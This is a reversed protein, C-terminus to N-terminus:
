PDSAPRALKLRGDTGFLGLNGGSISGVRFCRGRSSSRRFEARSREPLLMPETAAPVEKLDWRFDPDGLRRPEDVARDPEREDDFIFENAAAALLEVNDFLYKLSIKNKGLARGALLKDPKIPCKIIVLRNPANALRSSGRCLSHKRFNEISGKM